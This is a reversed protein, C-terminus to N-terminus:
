AYGGGIRWRTIGTFGAAQLHGAAGQPLTGPRFLLARAPGTHGIAFGLAGLAHALGETPDDQPGRLALTARASLSSLAALAAADSRAAQWRPILGAIDPFRHDRADTRRAPGHFGGLVEFVPLAPLHALVEGRRSAWLLRAPTDFMLPDSAGETAICAAAIAAPSFRAPDAGAAYALAVLAATSAGAGGGVPMEARLVMRGRRPLGLRALFAAARAPSLLIQGPQHLTFPGPQVRATVALVPCPLTILAVPGGPGIVGQILEGFHGPVRLSDGQRAFGGSGPKGKAASPPKQRPFPDPM